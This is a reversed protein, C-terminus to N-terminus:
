QKLGGFYVAGIGLCGELLQSLAKGDDYWILHDYWKRGKYVRYVYGKCARANPVRYLYWWENGQYAKFICVKEM